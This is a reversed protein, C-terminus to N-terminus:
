IGDNKKRLRRKQQISKKTLSNDAITDEMMEIIVSKLTRGRRSCYAKFQFKLDTPLDRIFLVGTQRRKHMNKRNLKM